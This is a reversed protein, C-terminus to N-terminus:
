RTLHRRAGLQGFGAFGEWPLHQSQRPAQSSRPSVPCMRHPSPIPVHSDEQQPHYRHSPHPPTSAIQQFPLHGVNSTAVLVSSSVHNYICPVDSAEFPLSYFDQKLISQIPNSQVLNSLSVIGMSRTYKMINHGSQMLQHASVRLTM